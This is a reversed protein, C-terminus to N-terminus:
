GTMGARRLGDLIRESERRYTPSLAEPPLYWPQAAFQRVTMGPELAAYEALHLRASHVDGTLAQAAALLAKGRPYGPNNDLARGLAEVAAADHALQM